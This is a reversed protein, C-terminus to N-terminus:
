RPRSNEIMIEPAQESLVKVMEALEPAEDTLKKVMEALEEEVRKRCLRSHVRKSEMGRSM